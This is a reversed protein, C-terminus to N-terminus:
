VNSNIARDIEDDFFGQIGSQANDMGRKMFPNAKIYRTGEHVFTAYNVYPSVRAVTPQIDSFISARMRGTDVPTELKSEREVLYASKNIAVGIANRIHAPLDNLYTGYRDADLRITVQLM